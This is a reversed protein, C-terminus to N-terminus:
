SARFRRVTLLEHREAMRVATAPASVVAVTEGRASFFELEYGEPTEGHAEYHEVVVGVDGARLGETPLDEVLVARDFPQLSM